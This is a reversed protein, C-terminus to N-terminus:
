PKSIEVRYFKSGETATTDTVSRESGSDSQLAGNLPSWQGPDLDTRTKVQYIRDLLVPSFVLCRHGPEGPVVGISLRFRSESDNPDLGATFEFRNDHPDGDPNAAPAALPNNEGFNVVQWDDDLEDGAYSGYNDKDTDLVQFNAIAQIIDFAGAVTAATEQYVPRANRLWPDPGPDIPGSQTTLALNGAPVQHPGRRDTTFALTFAASQEEPLPAPTLTLTTELVLARRASGSAHIEYPGATAVSQGPTSVGSVAHTSDGGRQRAQSGSAVEGELTYPGGARQAHSVCPLILTSLLILSLTSQLKMPHFHPNSGSILTASRGTTFDNM